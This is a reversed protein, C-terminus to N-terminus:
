ASPSVRIMGPHRHALDDAPLELADERAPRNLDLHPGRPSRRQLRHVLLQGLQGIPGVHEEQERAVVLKLGAVLPSPIGGVIEVDM